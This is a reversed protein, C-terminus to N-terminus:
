FRDFTIKFYLKFLNNITRQFQDFRVPNRNGFPM